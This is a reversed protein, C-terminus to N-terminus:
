LAGGTRLSLLASLTAGIVLVLAFIGVAASLLARPVAASESEQLMLRRAHWAPVAAVAAWVSAVPAQSFLTAVPLLFSGLYILLASLRPAWEWPALNALWNAGMILSMFAAMVLGMTPVRELFFWCAALVLLAPLVLSLALGPLGAPASAAFGLRPGVLRFLFDLLGVGVALALGTAAARHGLSPELIFCVACGLLVAAPGYAIARHRDLASEKSM